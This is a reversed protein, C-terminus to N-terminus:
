NETKVEVMETPPPPANRGMEDYVAKVLAAYYANAAFFLVTAGSIEWESPFYRGSRVARLANFV